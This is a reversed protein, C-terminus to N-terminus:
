FTMRIDLYQYRGADRHADSFYGFYRDALPARENFINRIGLRIRTRKAMVDRLRYDVTMNWTTMEPIVYKMGDPTGDDLTLSDQYFDSLSSRSISARWQELRWRALMTQKYEQNGDKRILDAFGEIPIDPPLIGDAKAAVLEGAKGGAEQEFNRLNSVLYKLSFDGIATELDAYIALDLGSLTRTDLNAYIDRINDINGFPCLGAALFIAAQDDTVDDIRVVAPNGVVTDCNDTGAQLRLLLDYVTHNEEGLLGITDEKEITWHDLTITVQDVPHFVVGISTNVSEEATLLDSGEAVRQTSGSCDLEDEGPDGGNVAAYTCAWDRRTNQRAVIDENVTVLNPARFSQSVSGRLGFVPTPHWGVAAKGVISSGVDSFNEFRLAVQSDVTEHLPVYFESFLSTVMRDGESDPTPSSNVVDSVFPYTDGEYDTYPITGDLRDDRDDVFAERRIEIGFLSGIPGAPATLLEFTALKFDALLLSTENDRTVDVLVREINSSVGGSFPNYAAPTPDFLAERLLNNSVRNRTLDQRTARSWLIASEWDWKAFSGRLGQLIRFVNGDNEIIRPLEAWRYNDIFLEVGSCPVDPIVSDPLRNPSGCPGFPNYYNEAGVRHKVTSFAYSPHRRLNTSASYWMFESFSQLGSDLEHNLYAFLTTRQRKSSLDRFENLNYRYVGQGDVGGCIHENLEWQCRPDGIPYTEFEGANDTLRGRVGFRRNSPVMDFQGYLSHASTNRFSTSGEWPSGDPVLPRLDSERWREDENASIRDRSQFDFLVSLNTRNENFYRGWEIHANQVTRSVLKYTSYRLSVTLGDVDTKLVTNIVGAVADAGYIAAAGDKLVELREVGLVPITNSNVTNVPVFSGGVEETQYSAANVLRRGNLLVLTNGTGLNRLNFAGIDGRAANVGGSINEEENFFNQGQEPVMDLLEDGSSVGLDEIDESTISSVPLVGAIDIGKIQTGTVVLEEEVEDESAQEEEDATATDGQSPDAGEEADQSLSTTSWCLAVVLVAGSLITRLDCFLSFLKMDSISSSTRTSFVIKGCIAHLAKSLKLALRERLSIEM